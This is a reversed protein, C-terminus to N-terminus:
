FFSAFVASLHKCIINSGSTDRTHPFPTGENYIATDTQELNHWSGWYLFAPCNCHIQIDMNILEPYMNRVDEWTSTPKVVRSDDVPISLNEEPNDALETQIDVPTEMQEPDELLITSWWDNFTVTQIWTNASGSCSTTFQLTGYTPDFHVISPTCLQARQAIHDPTNVSLELASYANILIPKM